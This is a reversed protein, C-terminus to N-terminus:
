GNNIMGVMMLSTKGHLDHNDKTQGHKSSPQGHRVHYEMNFMMKCPKIMNVMTPCPQDCQEYSIVTPKPQRHIIM